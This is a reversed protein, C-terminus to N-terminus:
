HCPLIPPLTPGSVNCIPSPAGAVGLVSPWYLVGQIKFVGGQTTGVYDPYPTATLGAGQIDLGFQSSAAPWVHTHYDGAVGLAGSPIPTWSAPPPSPCTATPDPCPDSTVGAAYSFVGNADGYIWGAYEQHKGNPDASTPEYYSVAAVSRRM